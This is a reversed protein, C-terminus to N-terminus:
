SGNSKQEKTITNLLDPHRKRWGRVTGIAIKHVPSGQRLTYNYTIAKPEFVVPIQLNVLRTYCLTSLNLLVNARDFDEGM